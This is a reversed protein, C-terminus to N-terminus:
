GCAKKATPTPNIPGSGQPKVEFHLHPPGGSANGTDGVYGVTQGASVKQGQDIQAYGKLHAYFYEAGDNGKLYLSIGGASSSAKRLVTGDVIAAVPTGSAAFMDVGQHQRGGSRPHGYTDTFSVPGTVPCKMGTTAIALGPDNATASPSPKPSSSAPVKPSPAVLAEPKPSPEAAAEAADAAAKREAEEEAIKNAAAKAAAEAEAEAESERELRLATQRDSVLKVELSQAKSFNDTLAKTQNSMDTLLEQELGGKRELEGQLRIMDQRNKSADALARSDLKSAAHVLNLRRVFDVINESGVLFHFLFVPGQRYMADARKSLRDRVAQSIAAAQELALENAKISAQTRALQTQATNYAAVTRDLDKQVDQRESRANNLEDPGVVSPASVVAVSPTAVWAVMLAALAIVVGTRAHRVFQAFNPLSM